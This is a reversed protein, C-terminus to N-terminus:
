KGWGALDTIWAVHMALTATLLPVFAKMCLEQWRDSKSRLYGRGACIMFFGPLVVGVILWLKEPTQELWAVLSDQLAYCLYRVRNSFNSEPFQLLVVAVTGFFAGWWWKKPISRLIELM